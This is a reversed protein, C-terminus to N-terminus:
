FARYIGVCVVAVILWIAALILSAPIAAISWKVMFRCMTGITMDIDTVVVRQPEGESVYRTPNFPDDPNLLSLSMASLGGDRRYVLHYMMMKWIIAAHRFVDADPESFADPFDALRPLPSLNIQSSVRAHVDDVYRIQLVSPFLNAQLRKM